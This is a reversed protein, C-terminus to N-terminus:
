GVKRWHKWNLIKKREERGFCLILSVLYGIIASLLVLFIFDIWNDIIISNIVVFYLTSLVVFDILGRFLTPFFFFSNQRILRAMYPIVFVFYYIISVVSSVGAVALVGLNTRYLFVLTLILSLANEVLNVATSVKLNNVVACIENICGMNVAVILSLMGLVTLVAVLQIEDQTYSPLWIKYFVKSYALLGALPVNLIFGTIRMSGKVQNGLEEIEKVAYTKLLNPNFVNVISSRIKVIATRITKSVAFIGMYYSSIFQNTILLDLGNSIIGGLSIISHCIGSSILGTVCSKRFAAVKIKLDPLLKKTLSYDMIVNVITAMWTALSIYYIKPEFFFYLLLIGGARIVNYFIQRVAYLDMRQAVYAGATFATEAVRLLFCLFTLLFTIRVDEILEYPITIINELFVVIAFLVVGLIAALFLDGFFLSSYFSNAKEKEGQHYAYAIFRCGMYNLATTIVTAYNAVNDSLTDFGYATSGLKSIIYPALVFNLGVAIIVSVINSVLSVGLRKKM